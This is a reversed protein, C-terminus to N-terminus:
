RQVAACSTDNRTIKHARQIVEPQRKQMDSDLQEAQKTGRLSM